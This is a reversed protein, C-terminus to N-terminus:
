YEVKKTSDKILYVLITLSISMRLQPPTFFSIHKNNKIYM